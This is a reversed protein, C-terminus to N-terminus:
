QKGLLGRHHHSLCRFCTHEGTGESLRVKCPLTVFAATCLVGAGERGRWREAGHSRGLPRVERHRFTKM